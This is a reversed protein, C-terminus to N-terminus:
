VAYWRSAQNKEYCISIICQNKILAKKLLEFNEDSIKKGGRLFLKLTFKKGIM